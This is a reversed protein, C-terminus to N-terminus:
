RQPAAFDCAAGRHTERPHYVLGLPECQLALDRLPKQAMRAMDMTRHGGDWDLSRSHYKFIELLVEEPLRRIHMTPQHHANPVFAVVSLYLGCGTAGCGGSWCDSIFVFVTRSPTRERSCHSICPARKVRASSPVRSSSRDLVVGFLALSSLNRFPVSDVTSDINEMSLSRLLSADHVRFTNTKTLYRFGSSSVSMVELRILNPAPGDIADVDNLSVVFEMYQWRSRHARILALLADTHTTDHWEKNDLARTNVQLSLLANGSREFWFRLADEETQVCRFMAARWLLPSQLAIARWKRSIGLLFIASGPGTLPPRLPYPPLYRLFIEAMIEPPLDNLHLPIQQDEELHLPKTRTSASLETALRLVM